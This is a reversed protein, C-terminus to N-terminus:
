GVVIVDVDDNDDDYRTSPKSGNGRGEPITAAEDPLRDLHMRWFERRLLDRVAVRIAESRSSYRGMRVLQDLAEVYIEPMKVTVIKM